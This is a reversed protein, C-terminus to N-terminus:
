ASVAKSDDLNKASSALIKNTRTRASSIIPPTPSSSQFPSFWTFYIVGSLSWIFLSFSIIKQSRKDLALYSQLLSKKKAAEAGPSEPDPVEVSPSSPSLLDASSPLDSTPLRDPKSSVVLPTAARARLHSFRAPHTGQLGLRWAETISEPLPQQQSAEESRGGGEATGEEEGADKRRATTGNAASKKAGLRGYITKLPRVYRARLAEAIGIPEDLMTRGRREEEEEKRSSSTSYKKTSAKVDKTPRNLQSTILPRSFLGEFALHQQKQHHHRNILLRIM